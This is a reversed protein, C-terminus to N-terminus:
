AIRTRKLPSINESPSVERDAAKKRTALSPTARAEMRVGEGGEAGDRRLMESGDFVFRPLDARKLLELRLDMGATRGEFSNVVHLYESVREGWRVDRDVGSAFRLAVFFSSVYEEKTDRRYFRAFPYARIEDSELGAILLRMRAECLGFWRLFEDETTAAVDVRLYAGHQGFFGSREFLSSWGKKGDEGTATGSLIERSVRAARRFEDRMRRLGPEGVNFSSNMSPYCPTIIPMVHLKDRYNERPDWVPRADVNRPPVHRSAEPTLMVPDPWNWNAFTEFFLHLLRASSADPHRICVFCVLIAWNVGGLYGLVNSYMGQVRAWEKVARLTLRYNELQRPSSMTSLLYQAVRVGNVSRVSAEDLGVLLSDDVDVERESGGDEAGGDGSKVCQAHERLWVENSISAFILDIKVGDMVFKIVPTYASSVPHLDEVGKKQKLIRVWSGFFDDRTAHRPALVLCDVDADPTHVGLRYSGFSLLIPPTEAGAAKARAKKAKKGKVLSGSWDQLMRQLKRMAKKRRATGDESEILNRATCVDLLSSSLREEDEPSINPPPRAKAVRRAQPDNGTTRKSRSKAAAKAGGGKQHKARWQQVAAPKSSPPNNSSTSLRDKRRRSRNHVNHPIGGGAPAEM